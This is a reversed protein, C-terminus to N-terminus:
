WKRQGLLRLQRTAMKSLARMHRAAHGHGPLLLCIILTVLLIWKCTSSVHPHM